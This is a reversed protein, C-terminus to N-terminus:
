ARPTAHNVPQRFLRGMEDQQSEIWDADDDGLPGLLEGQFNDRLAPGTSARWRAAAIGNRVSVGRWWNEPRERFLYNGDAIMEPLQM